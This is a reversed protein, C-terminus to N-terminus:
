STAESWTDKFNEWSREFAARADDWADDSASKLAQWQTTVESWAQDVKTQAAASAERGQAKARQFYERRKDDWAAMEREVREVYDRRQADGAGALSGAPAPADDEYRFEPAAEVEARTTDYLLVGDDRPKVEGYPVAVLKNGIGLFGGVSLVVSRAVGDPGIIVDRVDGLAEGRANAVPAGILRDASVAPAAETGVIVVLADPSTGAALAPAAPGLCLAIALPLATKM